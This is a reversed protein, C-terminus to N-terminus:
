FMIIQVVPHLEWPTKRFLDKIGEDADNVSNRIHEDDRFMYGTVELKHHIFSKPTLGPHMARYKRTVEVIMCSDQNTQNSDLSIVM